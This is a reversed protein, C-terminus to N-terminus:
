DMATMARIRFPLVWNGKELKIHEVFLLASGILLGFLAGAYASMIYSYMPMVTFLIYLGWTLDTQTIKWYTPELMWMGLLMYAAISSGKSHKGRLMWLLRHGIFITAPLLFTLILPSSDGNIYNVIHTPAWFFIWGALLSILIWFISKLRM